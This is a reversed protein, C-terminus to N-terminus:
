DILKKICEALSSLAYYNMTALRHLDAETAPKASDESFLFIDKRFNESIEDLQKILQTKNMLDVKRKTSPM